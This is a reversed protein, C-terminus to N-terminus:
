HEKTKHEKKDWNEKMYQVFDYKKDEERQVLFPALVAANGANVQVKDVFERVKDPQPPLNNDRYITIEEDWCPHVWKTRLYEMKREEMYDNRPAMGMETRKQIKGHKEMMEYFMTAMIDRLIELAKHKGMQALNLPEGMRVYIDKELYEHFLAIPVVECNTRQALLWPGAFLPQVLLNETNNWSGEPYFLVSNGNKLIREMKDVSARRNESDLTNVHIVGNVWVAYYQPNHEVQDTSGSLVYVNRDIISLNTILDEVFSHTSVFIYSKRKKLEPYSEMHVKHGVFLKLIRRWVPNIMRRIRMGTRTTFNNVDCYKIGTLFINKWM